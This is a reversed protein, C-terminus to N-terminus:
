LAPPLTIESSPLSAVASECSTLSTRVKMASPMLFPAAGFATVVYLSSSDRRANSDPLAVKM